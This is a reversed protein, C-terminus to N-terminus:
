ALPPDSLFYCGEAVDDFRYPGLEDTEATAPGVETSDTPADM